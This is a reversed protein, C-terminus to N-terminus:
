RPAAKIWAAIAGIVEDDLGLYGHPSFPECPDGQTGSGGEFTLLAHKPSRRLRKGLQAAEAYPSAGCADDRHHVILTPVVIRDLDVDRLSEIQQRSFRTVSSTLVVGEPGARGLRAAVSAASVSGMSTGILWVPAPAATRLFAMVAKVDEAHKATTRFQVLGATQLDSPADIVATLFGHQAFRQRNRVLFNTNRTATGVQALGLRGYGGTFLIVSAAPPGAPTLLIFAETVGPRTPLTKVEDDAAAARAALTTLALLAIGLAPRATM